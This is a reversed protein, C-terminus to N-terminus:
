KFEPFDDNDKSLRLSENCILLSCRYIVLTILYSASTLFTNEFSYPGLPGWWFKNHRLCVDHEFCNNPRIFTSGQKQTFVSHNKSVSLVIWVKFKDRKVWYETITDPLCIFGFFACLYLPLVHKRIWYCLCCKAVEKRAKSCPGNHLGLPSKENM